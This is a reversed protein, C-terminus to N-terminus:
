SHSNPVMRVMSWVAAWIQPSYPGSKRVMRDLTASWTQILIWRTNWKRWYQILLNLFILTATIVNIVINFKFMQPGYLDYRLWYTNWTWELNHSFILYLFFSTAIFPLQEMIEDNLLVFISLNTFEKM